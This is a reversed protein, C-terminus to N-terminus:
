IHYKLTTQLIHNSKFHNNGISAYDNMYGFGLSTNKFIPYSLGAYFWNQNLSKPVIGSNTNLWIENFATANIKKNETIKFLPMGWTFRYRFRMKFDTGDKTFDANVGQVIQDIFRQEFRFRHKFKSQGSTHSLVIQEWVNNENFNYSPSFNKAFSYGVSFDLTENHKYHVSPRILLQQWDKLFNTRRFHTENKIYINNSITYDLIVSNWSSYSEDTTSQSFVIM